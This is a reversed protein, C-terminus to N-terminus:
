LLMEAIQSSMSYREGMVASACCFSMSGRPSALFDGGQLQKISSILLQALSLFDSQVLGAILM